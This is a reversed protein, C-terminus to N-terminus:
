YNYSYNGLYEDIVYMISIVDYKGNITTLTPAMNYNAWRITPFTVLGPLGSDPQKLYLQYRGISLPNTFTLVNDGNALHVVQCNGNQWDINVTSIYGESAYQGNTAKGYEVVPLGDVADALKQVTNVSSDLNGNFGSSDIVNNDLSVNSVLVEITPRKYVLSVSMDDDILVEYERIPIDEYM